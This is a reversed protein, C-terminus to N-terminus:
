FRRTERIKDKYATGASREKERGQPHEKLRMLILRVRVLLRDLVRRIGWLHSHREMLHAQYLLYSGPVRNIALM